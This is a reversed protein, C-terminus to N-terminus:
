AARAMDVLAKRVAMPEEVSVPFPIRVVQDGLLLHVGESDVGAMRPSVGEPIVIGANVCYKVMADVHDENM